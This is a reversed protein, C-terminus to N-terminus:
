RTSWTPRQAREQAIEDTLATAAAIVIALTFLAYVLLPLVRTVVDGV